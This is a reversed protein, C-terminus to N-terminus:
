RIQFLGCSWSRAYAVPVFPCSAVDNLCRMTSQLQLPFKKKPSHLIPLCALVWHALLCDGLDWHRIMIAIKKKSVGCLLATLPPHYHPDPVTCWLAHSPSRYVGDKLSWTEEMNLSQWKWCTVELAGQCRGRLLSSFLSLVHPLCTMVRLQRSPSTACGKECKM